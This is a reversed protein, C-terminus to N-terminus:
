NNLIVNLILGKREEESRHAAGCLGLPSPEHAVGKGRHLTRADAVGPLWQEAWSWRHRPVRKSSDSVSGPGKGPHNTQESPRQSRPRPHPPCM